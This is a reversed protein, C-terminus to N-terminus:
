AKRRVESGPKHSRLPVVDQKVQPDELEDEWVLVTTIISQKLSRARFQYM